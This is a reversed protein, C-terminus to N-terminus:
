PLLFSETRSLGRWVLYRVVPRFAPLQKMKKANRIYIKGDCRGGGTALVNTKWPCWSLGKVASNHEKFLVKEDTMMDWVCVENDDGGSALFNGDPSWAISCVRSRHNKKKKVPSCVSQRVDYICVQGDRGATALLTNNWSACDINRVGITHAVTDAPLDRVYCASLSCVLLQDSKKGWSVCSIIDGPSNTSEFLINKTTNNYVYVTDELAVALNSTDDWGILNLYFDDTVNPADLMRTPTKWLFRSTIIPKAVSLQNGFVLVRAHAGEFLSNTVHRQFNSKYLNTEPEQQLLYSSYDIDMAHRNPIFRDFAM